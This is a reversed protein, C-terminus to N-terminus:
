HMFIAVVYLAFVPWGTLHRANIQKNKYDITEGWTRLFVFVSRM